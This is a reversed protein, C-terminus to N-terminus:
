VDITAPVSHANNPPERSFTLPGVAANTANSTGIVVLNPRAPSSSAVAIAPTIRITMPTAFSPLSISNTGCGTVVPNVLPMATTM